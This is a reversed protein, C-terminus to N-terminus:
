GCSLVCRTRADTEEDAVPGTIVFLWFQSTITGYGPTGILNSAFWVGIESKSKTTEMICCVKGKERKWLNLNTGYLVHETFPLM